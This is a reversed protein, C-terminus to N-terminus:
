AERKFVVMGLPPVTITLLYDRGHCPLPAATVGGFNGQGSGGYLPADSNLVEEWLGGRPVGVRYNHRPIPTFNCVVVLADEADRGKRMLSVTSTEADCCDIWEFGAQECDLVHM